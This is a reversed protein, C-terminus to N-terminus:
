RAIPPLSRLRTQDIFTMRQVMGIMATCSSTCTHILSLAARFGPAIRALKFRNKFFGRNLLSM